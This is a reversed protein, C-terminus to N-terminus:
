LFTVEKFAFRFLEGNENKLLLHGSPEIDYILASFEEGNDKRFPYFEGDGRWLKSLYDQHLRRRYDESSIKLLTEHLTNGLNAAIKEISYERGALQSMSVPNPLAPSFRSQNVNLGIGVICKSIDTGFISNEILIGCIKKEGVYIDNPWKVKAEIENRGLTEVVALAVAESIAFQKSAPISAPTFHFSFTLNKGPQAEWTNGRQGRGATQELAVVMCFSPFDTQAKLFSNTSDLSPVYRIEM